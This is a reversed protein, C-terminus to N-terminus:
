DQEKKLIIRFTTGEGVTSSKVTIKGNNYNLIRKVLTLGLGWGRQKTTFGPSFIKRQINKPIGKGTDTFDIIIHNNEEKLEVTFTGSNGGMADVANRTLNEVIWSFLQANTFVCVPHLPHLFNINIQSSVRKRLYNLTDQILPVLNQYDVVPDSGIKSFRDAIVHLRAIDKELEMAIESNEDQLKLLEVWAIMSSIPTGLQHATEKSMGAWVRNQEANRAVSFVSYALVILLLLVFFQVFPFIRMLMLIESDMYFIYRVGQEPLTVIIPNNQAVM